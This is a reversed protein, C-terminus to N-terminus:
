IQVFNENDSNEPIGESVCNQLEALIYTVFIHNSVNRADGGYTKMVSMVADSLTHGRKESILDFYRASRNRNEQVNM